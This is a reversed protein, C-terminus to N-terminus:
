RVNAPKMAQIIQLLEKSEKEASVQSAANHARQKYEQIDPQTLGNLKKALDRPDFTPSVIGLQYQNVYERMAPSPGIAIALRAQIFEFLKNPLCNYYNFNSNDHLLFIGIDYDNAHNVIENFAVPELFNIPKNHAYQKLSALYSPYTPLLMFDLTFRPDLYDFMDVMAELRRSPIAAGHHFLRIRNDSVTSPSIEPYFPCANTITGVSTLNCYSEYERALANTVTVTKDAQPM